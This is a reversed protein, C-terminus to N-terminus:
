FLKLVDNVAVFIGFGMVLAFGILNIIGEKEPPLQKRRIIEILYVFIRGGDLAPIPVLNIVGLNASLLAGLNLMTLVTYILGDNITERYADGVVATVGIPGSVDSMSVSFTLMKIVGLVTIKVLFIMNWFGYSVCEFFGAKPLVSFDIDEGTINILPAKASITLGMLYRDNKEDYKPTITAQMKKGNRVFTVDVEAQPNESLYFDVDSKIHVAKGNVSVIKDGATIGAEAAPYGDMTGAVVNTSIGSTMAIFTLILLALVFNMFPGAIAIAIRKFVNAQNFGIKNSNEVEDDAMRCFGGVPLLRVSYLTDGKKIGFLKPGMGVAFEEIYVNCKKAVIFHGWEHIVVILTFIILTIIVSM